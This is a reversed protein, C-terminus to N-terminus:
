LNLYKRIAKSNRQGNYLEVNNKSEIVVSPYGPIDYKKCLEKNQDNDCKVDIAKINDSNKLSNVFANWEPEFERSYRCWSTNFNYVTTESNKNNEPNLIQNHGVIDTDDGVIDTDDGQIVNNTSNELLMFNNPSNTKIQLENLLGEVTRSGEYPKLENNRVIVISPVTNIKFKSCFDINEDLDCKVDITKINPQTKIINTFKNWIPQFDKSHKCWTTNFNYVVTENNQFNEINNVSSVHSLLTDISQRGVLKIINNNNEIITTPFGDVEYKKYLEPIEPNKDDANIEIIQIMKNNAVKNKFNNFIPKYHKCHGCWDAYFLYVLIKNKSTGEFAEKKSTKNYLFDNLFIHILIVCFILILINKIFLNNDM